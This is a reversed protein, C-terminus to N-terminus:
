SEIFKSIQPTQIAALLQDTNTLDELVLDAGADALEEASTSGTAVGVAFAGISHACTIDHITDGIVLTGGVSPGTDNNALELHRLASSLAASAIDNRNSHHDGFGGFSFWDALGYHSLKAQAGAEVNGTLLGLAVHDFQALEDLLTEVGPLVQGEKFELSNGLRGLYAALFRQWNEENPELGNISMLEQAIARDSRGAFPVGLAPDAIQFEERFTAVFAHQGAGGTLLLTGDIDFLVIQKRNSDTM